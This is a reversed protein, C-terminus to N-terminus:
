PLVHVTTAGAAKAAAVAQKRAQAYTGKFWVMDKSDGLTFAWSGYGRPEKMHSTYYPRTNTTVTAM